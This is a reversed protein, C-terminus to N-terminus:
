QFEKLAIPMYVANVLPQGDTEKIFNMLEEETIPVKCGVRGCEAKLAAIQGLALTEHTRYCALLWRVIIEKRSVKAMQSADPFFAVLSCYTLSHFV